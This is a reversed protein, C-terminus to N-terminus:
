TTPEVGCNSSCKKPWKYVPHHKRSVGDQMNDCGIDYDYSKPWKWASCGDTSAGAECWDVQIQFPYMEVYCDDASSKTYVRLTTTWKAPNDIDYVKSNLSWVLKTGGTPSNLGIIKLETLNELELSEAEYSLTVDYINDQVWTAGTIKIDSPPFTTEWQNAYCAPSVESTPCTKGSSMHSGRPVLGSSHHHHHHSSGM